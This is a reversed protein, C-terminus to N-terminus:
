IINIWLRCREAWAEPKLLEAAKGQVLIQRKHILVAVAM